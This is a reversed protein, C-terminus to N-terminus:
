DDGFFSKNKLLGSRFTADNMRFIQGGVNINVISPKNNKVGQCIIAPYFKYPNFTKLSIRQRKLMAQERERAQREKM